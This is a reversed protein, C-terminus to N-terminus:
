PISFPIEEMPEGRVAKRINGIGWAVLVVLLVVGIAQQFFQAMVQQTLYQGNNSSM